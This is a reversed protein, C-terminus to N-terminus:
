NSIQYSEINHEQGTTDQQQISVPYLEAENTQDRVYNQVM